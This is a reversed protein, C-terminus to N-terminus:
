ERGVFKAEDAELAERWLLAAIRACRAVGLKGLDSRPEVYSVFKEVVEIQHRILARVEVRIASVEALVIRKRRPHHTGARLGALQVAYM